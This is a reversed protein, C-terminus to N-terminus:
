ALAIALPTNMDDRSVTVTLTGSVANGARTGRALFTHAAGPSLSVEAFGSAGIAIPAGDLTVALGTITGADDIALRVPVGAPVTTPQTAPADPATQASKPTAKYALYGAHSVAMLEVFHEDLPPLSDMGADAQAFLRVLMFVYTGVLLLTVLLQQVKSLDVTGANAVEDGSIIDLWSASDASAYGAAKGANQMTGTPQGATDQLRQQAASVEGQAPTQSAKLSLIAPTAVTSFAAIGMAALLEGPIDIGLPQGPIMSGDAGTQDPVAGFYDLLNLKAATLLGALVVITWLAMQLKSLSYDNWTSLAIGFARGTVAYGFGLVVAAVALLDILFTVVAWFHLHAATADSFAGIAHQAALPILITAVLVGLAWLIFRSGKM